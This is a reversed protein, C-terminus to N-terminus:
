SVGALPEAETLEDSWQDAFTGAFAAIPRDEEVPDVHGDVGHGRGPWLQFGGRHPQGPIEWTGWVTVRDEADREAYGRYFVTYARGPYTKHWHLTGRELEYGGRVTFPGVPDGGLGSVRGNAFELDVRKGQRHDYQLYFGSWPGSPFRADSEVPPTSPPSTAAPVSHHQFLDFTRM